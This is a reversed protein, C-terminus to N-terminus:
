ALYERLPRRAVVELRRGAIGREAFFKELEAAREHHPAALVVLRSGDVERLIEAWAELMQGSLKGPNNLCGFTVHGAADAPLPAVDPADAYPRYCWLTRPLRLLTETHFAETLGEPDACSDSIRYDITPVG